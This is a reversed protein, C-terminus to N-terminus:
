ILLGGRETGCARDAVRAVEWSEDGEEDNEGGAVDGVGVARGGGRGEGSRAVGEAVRKGV